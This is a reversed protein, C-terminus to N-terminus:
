DNPDGLWKVFHVRRLGGEGDRGAEEYGLRPYYSINEHMAANTYLRMEGLGLSRAKGEAYELLVRGQGKGQFSPSVAVNDVFYYHDEQYSVLVGVIVQDLEMVDVQGATVLADFDATMPAPERDIREVYKEYAERVLARITEVEDEVAVRIM